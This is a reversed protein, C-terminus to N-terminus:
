KKVDRAIEKLTAKIDDHDHANDSRFLDFNKNVNRIETEMVAVRLDIAHQVEAANPKAGNAVLMYVVLVLYLLISLFMKTKGNTPLQLEM